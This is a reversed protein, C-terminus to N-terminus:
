VSKTVGRTGATRQIDNGNLGGTPDPPLASQEQGPQDTRGIVKPGNMIMSHALKNSMMETYAKKVQDVMALSLDFLYKDLNPQVEESLEFYKEDRMASLGSYLSIADDTPKVEPMEGQAIQAWKAKVDDREMGMSPPQPPMINDIGPVGVAKAANKVLEWNGRPNIQPNFWITNQLVELGWLAVQREMAKSGNIFDPVMKTDYGGRISELTFQEFLRKGNEGLIREGLDRPAWDQYFELLMNISDCIDIILRSVWLSFRVESKQNILVDRTATGSSNQNNSMFYSAAGTLKEIMENLIDFDIQAWAMSRSLNPFYVKSPDDTPYVEGPKVKYTQKQYNEDPKSFGFPCNQTYQFDSKQNWVNNFANSVPAVLKPLSKGHFFGPRRILAGGRFPYRGSRTIKRLPKLSLLTETIPEVHCRFRETKNGVTLTGYWEIVALPFNCLNNTTGNQPLRLGLALAKEEATSRNAGFVSGELRKVFDEDIGLFIKRKILDKITDPTKYIRHIVYPKEEITAGYTPVIFDELNDINELVGKEFRKNVTKIDYGLFKGLTEKAKPGMVKGVVKQVTSYKPIRLDVWEYWVSWYGKMVSTGQTIRNHIFDDIEPAVNCESESVMWKTFKATNDRRDIDNEETAAFHISDPNWCTAMLTAQYQDCTASTLGLNRDAQWSEKDLGEIKSPPAGEYSMIDYKRDSLWSDMDSIGDKYDNIIKDVIEKQNIGILPNSEIDPDLRHMNIDKESLPNADSM